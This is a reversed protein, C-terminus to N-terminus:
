CGELWKALGYVSNTKIYNYGAPGYQYRTDQCYTMFFTQRNPENCDAANVGMCVLSPSDCGSIHYLHLNHGLEHVPSFFSFCSAADWLVRGPCYACGCIGGIDNPTIGFVYDYDYSSAAACAYAAPPCDEYNNYCTRTCESVDMYIAKVRADPDPCDKIPTYTKIQTLAEQATAKFASNSTYHLPVFLITLVDGLTTTTVYTTTSTSTTMIVTTITPAIILTTTTTSVKPIAASVGGKVSLPPNIMVRVTSPLRSTAGQDDTVWLKVFYEGVTTYTHEVYFGEEYTGDGYDWLYSVIVGDPDSSLSADFYAADGVTVEVRKESPNIDYSARAEAIPPQNGAFPVAGFCVGIDIGPVAVSVIFMLVLLIILAIVSNVVLRRGLTRNGAEGTVYLFGGSVFLLALLAPMVWFLLCILNRVLDQTHGLADGQAFVISSLFFLILAAM